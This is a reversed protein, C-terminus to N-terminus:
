ESAKPAEYFLEIPMVNVIERLSIRKSQEDGLKTATRENDFSKM